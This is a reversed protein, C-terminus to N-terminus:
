LKKVFLSEWKDHLQKLYRVMIEREADDSIIKEAICIAIILNQDLSNAEHWSIETTSDATNTQTKSGKQCTSSKAKKTM